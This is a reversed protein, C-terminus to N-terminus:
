EGFYDNDIKKLEYTSLTSVGLNYDIMFEVLQNGDILIVKNPITKVYQIATESFHSTTIFIGKNARQGALAGIFNQIEPRGVPQFHWRKAQIYISDLGLKDEKIIGDIGEDNTLRTAKGADKISGGYGMKVLLEVVLKEFFAPSCSKVKLLLEQSLNKRINQYSAELIEEPTSYDEIEVKRINKKNREKTTVFFDVFSPFQKLYENNIKSPKQSLVKKGESTIKFVSRRPSELLGAKFLFVKAWGVRNDFVAQAGSSLLEKREEQTLKFYDALHEIM